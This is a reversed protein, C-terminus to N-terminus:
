KLEERALFTQTPLVKGYEMSPSRQSRPGSQWSLFFVVSDHIFDVSEECWPRSEGGM